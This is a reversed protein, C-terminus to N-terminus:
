FYNVNQWELCVDIERERNKETFINNDETGHIKCFKIMIKRWDKLFIGLKLSSVKM